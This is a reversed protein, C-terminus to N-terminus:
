TGVEAPKEPRPGKHRVSTGPLHGLSWCGGLVRRNQAHETGMRRSFEQKAKFLVGSLHLIGKSGLGSPSGVAPQLGPSQIGVATGLM